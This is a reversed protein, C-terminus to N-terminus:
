RSHEGDVGAGCFFGDAFYEIERQGFETGHLFRQDAFFFEKACLIVELSRQHKGELGGTGAHGIERALFQIEAAEIREVFNKSGDFRDGAFFHLNESLFEETGLLDRGSNEARHVSEGEVTGAQGTLWWCPEGNVCRGREAM